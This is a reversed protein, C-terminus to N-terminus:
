GNKPIETLGLGHVFEDPTQRDLVENLQRVQEAAGTLDPGYDYEVLVPRSRRDVVRVTSKPTEPMLGGTMVMAVSRIFSV